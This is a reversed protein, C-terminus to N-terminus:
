DRPARRRRYALAAAAAPVTVWLVGGPVGAALAIALAGVGGAAAVWLLVGTATEAVPGWGFRATVAVLLAGLTDLAVDRASGTRNPVTSQHAEDVIAVAVAIALALWAAPGPRTVESRAFARFWLATLVAYETLHATKRLLGHVVDVARPTLWPLLWALLPSLVSGTNDAGFPATSFALVVVTWLVPPLWTVLRNM